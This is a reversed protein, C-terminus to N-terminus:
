FLWTAVLKLDEEIKTKASAIIDKNPFSVFIKSDNHYEQSTTKMFFLLPSLM